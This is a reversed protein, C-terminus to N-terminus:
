SRDVKKMRVLDSLSFLEDEAAGPIPSWPHLVNHISINRPRLMCRDCECTKLRDSALPLGKAARRFERYDDSAWVSAFPSADSLRGVPEACQCCPLVTGNALINTFYWGAYCPVVPPGEISEQMYAPVNAAFTTLNTAVGLEEAARRAAPISAHLERYQDASLALDPTGDHIVTHVFIAEDAGVEAAARVMAEIEFHNKAGITFSLRVHPDESRGAKRADALYRLNAKVRLYDEPTETVHIHPYTEPTGANLSVNLRDLGAAILGDSISSTLKSGNTCLVLLMERSKAYAVMEVAAPNLLPEGRGVLDIRRTGLKHLDDVISQFRHLSMVSPPQFGFREATASSARSEPPHDWCM